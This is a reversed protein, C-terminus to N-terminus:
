GHHWSKFNRPAGDKRGTYDLKLLRCESDLGLWYLLRLGFELDLGLERFM